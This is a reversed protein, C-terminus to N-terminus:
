PPQRRRPRERGARRGRFLVDALNNILCRSQSRLLGVTQSGQQVPTPLMILFLPRGAPMIGASVMISAAHSNADAPQRIKGHSGAPGRAFGAKRPMTVETGGHVALQDLCPPPAAPSNVPVRNGRPMSGFTRPYLSGDYNRVDLNCQRSRRVV